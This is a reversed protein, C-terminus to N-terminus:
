GGGKGGISWSVAPSLGFSVSRSAQWGLQDDKIADCLYHSVKVYFYNTLYYKTFTSTDERTNGKSTLDSRIKVQALGEVDPLMRPCRDM